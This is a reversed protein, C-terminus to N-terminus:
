ATRYGDEDEKLVAVTLTLHIIYIECGLETISILGCADGCIYGSRLLFGLVECVKIAGFRDFEKYINTASVTNNQYLCGLVQLKQLDGKFFKLLYDRYQDRV